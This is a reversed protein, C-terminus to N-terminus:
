LSGIGPHMPGGTGDGQIHWRTADRVFEASVVQQDRWRGERLSLLGFRAQDRATLHLGSGGNVEGQPSRDWTGREIGLPRFLVRDAYEELPEGVAAAVMVGLVHSGGTTYVYTQGPIGTVPRRLVEVVWDPSTTLTPWDGGVPWDIGSSMTLLQGVTVNAVNPDAGEPIRDPITQGMTQDLGSLKGEGIAIGTLFGTVSKTVSRVNIPVDPEHGNFYREYGIRGDRVAMLVSIAPVEAVARGTVLDLAAPDFGLEAPDATEWDDGPWVLDGVPQQRALAPSPRHAGSALLAAASAVLARRSPM